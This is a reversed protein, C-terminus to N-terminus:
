RKRKAGGARLDLLSQRQLYRSVFKALLASGGQKVLLEPKPPLAGTDLIANAEAEGMVLAADVTPLTDSIETRVAKGFTAVFYLAGAADVVGVAISGKLGPPAKDASVMAHLAALLEAGDRTPHPESTTM